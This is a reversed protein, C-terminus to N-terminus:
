INLKEICFKYKKLIETCKTFNTQKICENLEKLLGYCNDM